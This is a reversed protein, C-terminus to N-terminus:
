GYYAIYRRVYTEWSVMEGRYLYRTAPTIWKVGLQEAVKPHVPVQLGALDDSGARRRQGSRWGLQAAIQRALIALLEGSPHGTTHFMRRDRFRDLIFAGLAGGHKTDMRTLRREEYRHLRRPDIVGGLDLSRYAEFRAEPDAIESRLRGLLGDFYTFEFNPFDQMRAESDDPGNYADFPWLSALTLCPFAVTDNRVYDRLPYRAWDKIDQVLVVDCSELDRKGQELLSGQLEMFHHTIRFRNGLATDRRFTEALIGAQCNGILVVRARGTMIAPAAPSTATVVVELNMTRISVISTWSPVIRFTLRHDEGHHASLGPPVEFEITLDALEERRFQREVLVQGALVIAIRLAPKLSRAQCGLRLRYSGAPLRVNPLCRWDSSVLASTHISDSRRPFLRAHRLRRRHEAAPPGVRGVLRWHRVPEAQPDFPGMRQLAIDTMQLDANALHLFRFEFPADIGFETGSEPPVGFDLYGNGGNLDNRCFDQWARLFRNQAIIELGLVPWFKANAHSIACTFNLRYQGTALRLHPGHLFAVPRSWRSIFVGGDSLRRASPHVSMRSLVPQTGGQDPVRLKTLVTM